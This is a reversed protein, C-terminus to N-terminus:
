LRHKAVPSAVVILLRGVAVFLLDKENCSSFAQTCSHLGLAVLFFLSFLFSYYTQKSSKQGILAKPNFFALKPAAKLICLAIFFM